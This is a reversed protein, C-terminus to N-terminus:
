DDSAGGFFRWRRGGFRLKLLFILTFPAFLLTANWLERAAASRIQEELYTVRVFNSSYPEIQGCKESSAWDPASLVHRALLAPWRETVLNIVLDAQPKSAAVLDYNPL